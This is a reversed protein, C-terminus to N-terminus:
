KFAREDEGKLGSGMGQLTRSAHWTV